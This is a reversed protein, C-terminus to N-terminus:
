EEWGLITVGSNAGVGQYYINTSELLLDFYESQGTSTGGIAAIPANVHTAGYTTAYNGNPAVAAGGSGGAGTSIGQVSKATPPVISSVSSAVWAGGTVGNALVPLQTVNSGAVTKYQTRRNSQVFSLPYKNATSDTRIAGIRAFKTYGVPLAPATASLSAVLAKTGDDKTIAYAHYWTSAAVVGTDLGGAGAVTMNITGNWNRTSLYNGAGDGTILEDITYSVVASTGPASGKLNRFSGSIAALPQQTLDSLADDILDQIESELLYMEHPDPDITTHAAFIASITDLASKLWNTRNALQKAQRNAIAAEGEGGLADDTQEIQYIGETYEEIEPLNAM